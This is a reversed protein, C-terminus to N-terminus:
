VARESQIQERVQTRSYQREYTVEKAALASWVTLWLIRIDLLLSRHDVYWVDLELKDEHTLEARGNIQAWGTMGPLVELRRKQRQNWLAAQREYLPRPGVLSMSGALVNFLQPLEDLSTERLFRGIRTLRADNAASPSAGYPDIDARMSRFKLMYFPKGGKGARRQRFIAGGPSDLRVAMAILIMVSYVLVLGLLTLFIDFLRKIM